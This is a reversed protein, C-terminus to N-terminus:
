VFNQSYNDRPRHHIDHGQRHGNGYSGRETTYRVQELRAEDQLNSGMALDVASKGKKKLVAAANNEKIISWAVSSFCVLRRLYQQWPFRFLQLNSNHVTSWGLIVLVLVPMERECVQWDEAADDKHQNDDDQYEDIHAEIWKKTPHTKPDCGVHMYNDAELDDALDQYLRIYDIKLYLPFSDCIKNTEEDSGDGRCKKGPNPPTAGWSSSLAVNFIIYMPEELMIKEPNTKNGNQPVDWISAAPVEFIPNGELMWRVYGNKGTVWEVQYVVYDTYAGVHVPWNSSIADMQYNFQSMANSKPTTTANRPQACKWYTNDPDCLYAGTYVNWLPYCTGNSNIGWHDEGKGDILSLDGYVDDSAPCIDVSCSNETIGAKVSAAVTSYSQKAKPDPKCFNNASYRLGQYWSKHGRKAYVASPVGIYNAGPTTCTGGYICSPPDQAYNLGMVRYEDPMGPAIQLSSSILSASGELV